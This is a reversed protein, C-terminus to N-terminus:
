YPPLGAVQGLVVPYRLVSLVLVTDGQVPTYSALYAMQQATGLVNVTALPGGDSANGPAVTAVTGFRVGIVPLADTRRKMTKALRRATRRPDTM